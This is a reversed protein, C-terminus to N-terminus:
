KAYNDTLGSFYSDYVEQATAAGKRIEFHQLALADDDSLRKLLTYEKEGSLLANILDLKSQETTTYVCIGNTYSKIVNNAGDIVLDVKIFRGGETSMMTGLNRESNYKIGVGDFNLYNSGSRVIEFTGNVTSILWFSITLGDQAKLNLRKQIGTDFMPSSLRIANMDIASKVDPYIYGLHRGGDRFIHEGKYIEGSVKEKIYNGNENFDMVFLAEGANETDSNIVSLNPCMYGSEVILSNTGEPVDVIIEAYWSNDNSIIRKSPRAVETIMNHGILQETGAFTGKLFTKIGASAIENSLTPEESYIQKWTLGEDDSMFLAANKAGNSGCGGAIIYGNIKEPGYVAHVTNLVPTFTIDDTTRIISHGGCIGTEGGLLRYGKPDVYTVGHDVTAPKDRQDEYLNVWTEGGDTSRLVCGSEVYYKGTDPNLTKYGWGRDLGAYIAVPNQYPDVTMRHVHQYKPDTGSYVKRWTNGADISKWIRPAFDTQYSGLLMTGDPLEVFQFPRVANGTKYTGGESVDLVQTVSSYPPVSKCLICFDNIGFFLTGDACVHTLQNVKAGLQDNISTIRTWTKGADTSKVVYNDRAIYINGSGDALFSVDSNGLRSDSIVDINGTYVTQYKLTKGTNTTIRVDSFDNRANPLYVDNVTDYGDNERKHLHLIFKQKGSKKLQITQQDQTRGDKQNCLVELASNLVLNEKALSDAYLKNMQTNYYSEKDGGVVSEGTGGEELKTVRSGLENTKDELIEINNEALVVRGEYDAPQNYSIGTSRWEQIVEIHEETTTYTIEQNVTVILDEGSGYANLRIYKATASNARFAGTTSSLDMTFTTVETAEDYTVILHNIAADGPGACGQGVNNDPKYSTKDDKYLTFYYHGTLSTDWKAGKMRVVDTNKWEIFGTTVSGTQPSSSVTGSSSLRANDQYGKGNFPSGDVDPSNTVRNIFNPTTGGPIVITKEQYSYFMGDTTLVYMKNKDTMEEISDVFTPSEAVKVYPVKKAVNDILAEDQPIGAVKQDIYETLENKISEEEASGDMLIQVTIGEPMEEDNGVYIEAPKEERRAWEPVTPDAAFPLESAEHQGDGYKVRTYNYNEDPDYLIKEGASPVYKSLVWEAATKHRFIIKGKMSFEEM